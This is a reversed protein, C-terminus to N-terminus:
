RPEGDFRRDVAILTERMFSEYRDAVIATRIMGMLDQYFQLNHLTNLIPGLMEGAIYLHRLYARSFNTCTPCSCDPDVPDEDFRFRSNKITIEGQRTFLLGTRGSRTPLVCDFMDVGRGVSRLIDAPRGVGMFYRPKHSPLPEISAALMEDMLAKSEGVSLGGIALGDFPLEALEQAHERRLKAHMAGQTIGFLANASTRATLCRQAWRTTMAMSKRAYEEDAEKPPCEDLVMMIDSGLVEQIEIAKEPSLEHKSGDLHSRFVAGEERLKVLSKLSFVQYGGSDTLISGNWAMMKHLGGLKQVVEMGPRLYLHYTNGLLIGSGMAAIDWPPIGKVSGVTGVPMFVPTEFTSHATRVRGRRAYGGVDTHVLDFQFDPV